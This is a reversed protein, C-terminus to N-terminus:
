FLLIEAYISRHVRICSGESTPTPDEAPQSGGPIHISPGPSQDSFHKVLGNRSRGEGWYNSFLTLFWLSWVQFLGGMLQWGLKRYPQGGWGM